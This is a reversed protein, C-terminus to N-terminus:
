IMLMDDIMLPAPTGGGWPVFRQGSNGVPRRDVGDLSPTADSEPVQTDLLTAVDRDSDERTLDFELADCLSQSPGPVTSAQSMRHLNRCTLRLRKPASPVIQNSRVAVRGGHDVSSHARCVHTADEDEGESSLADFRGSGVSPLTPFNGRRSQARAVVSWPSGSECDM